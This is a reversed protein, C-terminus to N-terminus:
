DETKTFGILMFKTKTANLTLRNPYRLFSAIKTTVNDIKILYIHNKAEYILSELDSNRLRFSAIYFTNQKFM